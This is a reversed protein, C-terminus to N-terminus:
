RGDRFRESGWLSNSWEIIAKCTEIDSEGIHIRRNFFFELERYANERTIIRSKWLRDFAEHARIRYGRTEQNCLKGLPKDTGKHCGVYQDCKPHNPCVWVKRGYSIGYIIKSDKLVAKVGCESCAPVITNEKSYM